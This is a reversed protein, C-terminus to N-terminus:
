EIRDRREETYCSHVLVFAVAVELVASIELLGIEARVALQSCVVILQQCAAAFAAATRNSAAVCMATALAATM